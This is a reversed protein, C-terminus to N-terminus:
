INYFWTYLLRGRPVDQLRQYWLVQVGNHSDLTCTKYPISSNLMDTTTASNVEVGLNSFVSILLMFTVCAYLYLVPM